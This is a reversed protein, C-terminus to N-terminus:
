TSHRCHEQGFKCFFCFSISANKAGFSLMGGIKTYQTTPKRELYTQFVFRFARRKIHFIMTKPDFISVNECKKPDPPVGPPWTEFLHAFWRWFGGFDLMKPRGKPPWKPTKQCRFIWQKEPPWKKVSKRIKTDGPGGFYSSKSAIKLIKEHRLSNTFVVSEGSDWCSGAPELGEWFRNNKINKSTDFKFPREAGEKKSKKHNQTIKHTGTPVMQADKQGGLFCPFRPGLFSLDFNLHSRGQPYPFVVNPM